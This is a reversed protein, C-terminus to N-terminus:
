WDSGVARGWVFRHKRHDVRLFEFIGVEVLTRRFVGNCDRCLRDSFGIAACSRVRSVRRCRVTLHRGGTALQRVARIPTVCDYGSPRSRTIITSLPSTRAGVCCGAEVTSGHGDLGRRECLLFGALDKSKRAKIPQPSLIQGSCFERRASMALPPRGIVAWALRGGCATTRVMM